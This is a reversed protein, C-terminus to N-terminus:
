SLQWPTILDEETIIVKGRGRVSIKQEKLSVIVEDGKLKNEGQEARAKGALIISGDEPKYLATNGWAQIDKYDIEVANNICFYCTKPKSLINTQKHM